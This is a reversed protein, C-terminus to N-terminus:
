VQTRDDVAAVPGLHEAAIRPDRRQTRELGADEHDADRVPRRQRELVDGHLEEAVGEFVLQRASAAPEGDEARGRAVGAAGGLVRELALAADLYEHERREA